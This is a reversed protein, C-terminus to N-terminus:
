LPDNAGAAANELRGENQVSPLYLKVVTDRTRAQNMAACQHAAAFFFRFVFTSCFSLLLVNRTQTDRTQKEATICSTGNETIYSQAPSKHSKHKSFELFSSNKTSQAPRWEQHTSEKERVKNRGSERVLYKGRLHSRKGLRFCFCFCIQLDLFLTVANLTIM